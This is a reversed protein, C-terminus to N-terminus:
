NRGIIDWATLIGIVKENSKGNQTVMVCSLKNGKKFEDIFSNAVDNYLEDRSAFKVVEKSKELSICEKIDSFTTNKDIDIIGNEMIYQFLSNESFVGILSKGDESYIPIHTYVKENMDNMTKLVKDNITMSYINKTSKSYVNFPHKVEDIVKELKRLTADTIFYYNDNKEHFNINRLERCFDIFFEESCYPDRREKRLTKICDSLTSDENGVRKKTEKEFEIFLERFKEVNNM